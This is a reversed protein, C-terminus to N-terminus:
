WSDSLGAAELVLRCAALAIAANWDADMTCGPIVQPPFGGRELWGQLAEAASRAALEDRRMRADLLDRWAIQPDM